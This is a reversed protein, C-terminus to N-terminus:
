KETFFNRFLGCGTSNGPVLTIFSKTQLKPIYHVYYAQTITLNQKFVNGHVFVRFSMTFIQLNHFYFSKYCQGRTVSFVQGYFGFINKKFVLYIKSIGNGLVM